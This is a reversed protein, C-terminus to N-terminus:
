GGFLEGQEFPIALSPTLLSRRFSRCMSDPPAPPGGKVINTYVMRVAPAGDKRKKCPHAAISGASNSTNYLPTILGVQGSM